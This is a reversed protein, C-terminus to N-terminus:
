KKELRDQLAFLEQAAESSSDTIKMLGKKVQELAETPRDRMLFFEGLVVYGEVLNADLELALKAESLARGADKTRLLNRALRVRLPADDPKGQLLEELMVAAELHQGRKEHVRALLLRAEPQQSDAKLVAELYFGAGNWAESEILIKADALLAVSDGEKQKFTKKLNSIILPEEPDVPPVTPDVASPAVSVTTSSSAVPLPPRKVPPAPKDAAAKEREIGLRSERIMIELDAKVTKGQVKAMLPEAATLAPGFEGNVFQMFVGFFEKEEPTGQERFSRDCKALIDQISEGLNGRNLFIAQKLFLFAQQVDDAQSARSASQLFVMDWDKREPLPQGSNLMRKLYGRAADHEGAQRDFEFMVYLSPLHDPQLRLAEGLCSRAKERQKLSSWVGALAFQFRATRRTATALLGPLEELEAVAKREGLGQMLKLAVSEEMLVAGESKKLTQLAADLDKQDLCLQFFRQQVRTKLEQRLSAKLLEEYLGRAKKVSKQAELLRGLAFVLDLSRDKAVEKELAACDAPRSKGCCTEAEAKLLRTRLPEIRMTELKRLAEAAKGAELLREAADLDKIEDISLRSSVAKGAPAPQFYSFYLWGFWLLLIALLILPLSYQKM